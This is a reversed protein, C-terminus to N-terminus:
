VGYTYTWYFGFSWASRNKGDFATRNEYDFDATFSHRPTLLFTFQPRIDFIFGGNYDKTQAYQAYDSDHWRKDYSGWALSSWGSLIMRRSIGFRALIGAYVAPTYNRDEFWNIGGEPRLTLDIKPFGITVAAGTTWAMDTESKNTDISDWGFWADVALKKTFVLSAGAYLNGDQQFLGEYAFAAHLFDIPHLEFGFNIIPADTNAGSPIAAGIQFLDKYRYRAGIATKAYKNAVPVFGVVDYSGPADPIYRYRHAAGNWVNWDNSGGAVGHRDDYATSFGGARIHADAKWVWNGYGPAPGVSWNLKTGVGADFSKFPHMLFNIYYSDSRTNLHGNAANNYTVGAPAGIRHVNNTNEGGNYYHYSLASRETNELSFNDLTNNGDNWRALAGWNIMGDVTFMGVDVRAQLTDIFGYYKARQSGLPGGFGTWLTNEVGTSQLVQAHSAAGIVGLAAFVICLKKM